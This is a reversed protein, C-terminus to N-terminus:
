ILIAILSLASKELATEMFAGSIAGWIVRGTKTAKAHIYEDNTVAKMSDFYGASEILSLIQESDTLDPSYRIVMSGTVPNVEVSRIGEIRLLM